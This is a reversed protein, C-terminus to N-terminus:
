VIEDYLWETSHDILSTGAVLSTCGKKPICFCLELVLQEVPSKDKM